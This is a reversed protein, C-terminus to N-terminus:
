LGKLINLLQNPRSIFPSHDANQITYVDVDPYNSYMNQQAQPTIARDDTCSIYVKDLSNYASSLSVPTTFTALPQPVLLTKIFYIDETINKNNSNQGYNYFANEYANEPIFVSDGTIVINQTVVSNVDTAAIDFLSQGDLLMFASVYVVQDVYSSLNEAAQSIVVGGYSHGVLTIGSGIEQMKATVANVHTALTVENIPTRDTGLGPLQVTYVENGFKELGVVMKNWSGEPHWAGHVLLFKKNGKKKANTESSEQISSSPTNQSLNPQYTETSNDECSFFILAFLALISFKLNRM